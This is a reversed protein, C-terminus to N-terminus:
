RNCKKYTIVTKQISLCPVWSHRLYWNSPYPKKFAIWYEELHFQYKTMLFLRKIESFWLPM